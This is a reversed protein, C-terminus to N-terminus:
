MILTMVKLILIVLTTYELLTLSNIGPPKKSYRWYYSTQGWKDLRVNGSEDVYCEEDYRISVGGENLTIENESQKKTMKNVGKNNVTVFM